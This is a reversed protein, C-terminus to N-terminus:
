LKKLLAFALSLRALLALCVSRLFACFFVFFLFLFVAVVGVIFSVSFLICHNDYLFCILCPYYASKGSTMFLLRFNSTKSSPTNQVFRAHFKERNESTVMQCM